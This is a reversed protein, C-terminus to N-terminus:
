SSHNGFTILDSIHNVTESSSSFTSSLHSLSLHQHSSNLSRRRRKSLTIARYIAFFSIAGIAAIAAIVLDPCLNINMASCSEQAPSLLGIEEKSKRYKSGGGGGRESNSYSGHHVLRQPSNTFM